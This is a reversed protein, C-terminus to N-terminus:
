KVLLKRIESVFYLSGTVLLIENDKLNSVINNFTTIYDDVYHKNPHNSNLYLEYSESSRKYDIKTFYIEDVMSDVIKIVTKYDKDHMMCLMAIIKKDNYISLTKKLSLIGPENHAGDIIVNNFVEFRGPWKTENLGTIINSDSIDFEKKNKLYKLINIALIANDVQHYGILSLDFHMDLYDFRTKDNVIINKADNELFYLPSLTKSSYEKFLSYLSKDATTFMPVNPKLIGLKNIAIEELTNGLINMHDYGINTIGCALPTIVNTADLIGGLGVEIVAVDVMQDKFYLFAMTTELEFFTMQENFEQELRDNLDLLYNTYLLIDDDSIYEDNIMIRENFKVVYPSTYLGVKYGAQKLANKLYNCCSGKGNTGAIHITPYAKEPNDLLKLALTIKHLDVKKSFRRRTEIWEIAEKINKFM